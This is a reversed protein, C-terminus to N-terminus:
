AARAHQRVSFSQRGLGNEEASLVNDTMVREICIGLKAYYAVAAELFGSAVGHACCRHSESCTPQISLAYFARWTGAPMSGKSM